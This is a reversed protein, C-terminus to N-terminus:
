ALAPQQEGDGVARGHWVQPEGPRTESHVHLLLMNWGPEVWFGRRFRHTPSQEVGFLQSQEMVCAGKGWTQEHTREGWCRAPPFVGLVEGRRVHRLGLKWNQPPLPDNDGKEFWPLYFPCSVNVATGPSGDPWCAYMDFTRNCFLGELLLLPFLWHDSALLVTVDLGTVVAGQWCRWPAPVVGFLARPGVGAEARQPVGAGPMGGSILLCREAGSEDRWLHSTYLISSPHYFGAAAVATM